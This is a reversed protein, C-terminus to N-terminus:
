NNDFMPYPAAYIEWNTNPRDDPSSAVIRQNKYPPPFLLRWVTVEEPTASRLFWWQADERVVVVYATYVDGVRYIRVSARADKMEKRYVFTTSEPYKLVWETGLITQDIIALRKRDKDALITPIYALALFLLIIGAVNGLGGDRLADQVTRM